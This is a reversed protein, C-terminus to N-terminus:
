WACSMRPGRRGNSRLREILPELLLEFVPPRATPDRALVASQLGDQENRSPAMRCIKGAFADIESARLARESGSPEMFPEM